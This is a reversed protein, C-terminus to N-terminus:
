DRTTQDGTVGTRTAGSTTLAPLTPPNEVVARVHAPIIARLHAVQDADFPFIVKPIGPYEIERFNAPPHVARTMPIAIHGPPLRSPAGAQSNSFGNPQAPAQSEDNNGQNDVPEEAALFSAYAAIDYSMPEPGVFPKGPGATALSPPGSPSEGEKALRKRERTALARAIRREHWAKVFARREESVEEGPAPAAPIADPRAAAAPGSTVPRRGGSLFAPPAGAIFKAFGQAVTTRGTLHSIGNTSLPQRALEAGAHANGAPKSSSKAQVQQGVPGHDLLADDQEDIDMADPHKNNKSAVPKDLAAQTESAKSLGNAVMDYGQGHNNAGNEFSPGNLEASAQPHGAVQSLSEIQAQQLALQPDLPFDEQGDIDMADTHKAKKSATTKDLAAKIRSSRRTEKQAVATKRLAAQSKTFRRLVRTSTPHPTGQPKSTNARSPKAPSGARTNQM